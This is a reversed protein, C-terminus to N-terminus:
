INIKQGVNLLNNKLNNKTRISDVTTNFRKAISYLSDGKQVVYKKEQNNM